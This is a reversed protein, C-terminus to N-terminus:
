HGHGAHPDLGSTIMISKLDFAGNSVYKEGPKLGSVIEISDRSSRGTVVRSPSFGKGKPVFVVKEGAMMQVAAKKVVVNGVNLDNSIIGIAFMGPKLEGSPNKLNVRVLTTRTEPNLEPAIYSITGKYEPCGGIVVKVNMGKKLKPLDKQHAKMDLWVESLDAIIFSIQSNDEPYNQGLTIDKDIVEGSILAKMPFSTCLEKNNHGEHTEIDPDLGLAKIKDKAFHTAIKAAAYEQRAKIYERMSVAKKETLKKTREYEDKSLIEKEKASYYDIFLEGLKHSQLLAMVEGKKVKDGVNKYVATIFGPIRPMVHAIRHSEYKIEGPLTLKGNLSGTEAESTKLKVADKQFSTLTVAAEDDCGKDEDAKEKEAEHDHGKHEDAKEAEHDHGKHEDAEDKHAENKNNKQSHACNKHQDESKNKEANAGTNILLLLCFVIYFKM